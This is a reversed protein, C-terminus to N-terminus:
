HQRVLTVYAYPLGDPTVHPARATERWVDSDFGPMHADGEIEADIETLEIRTARDLFAAYIEAGGLIAIEQPHEAQARALAEDVSHVVVAGEPAFDRARTMVINTRGPLPKRPFSDWTKRGIIIPKGMTIAKLRPLDGPIHWPITNNRGIVGNRAHAVVFTIEM